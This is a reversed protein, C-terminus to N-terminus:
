RIIALKGTKADDSSNRIVYFYVGSATAHGSSNRTDWVLAGSGTREEGHWVKEGLINYVDVDAPAPLNVFTIGAADTGTQGPGTGADPGHPRFPVPFAYADNVSVDATTILAFVSLHPLAM